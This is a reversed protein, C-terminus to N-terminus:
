NIVLARPSVLLIPEERMQLFAELSGRVQPWNAEGVIERMIEGLQAAPSPSAVSMMSNLFDELSQPAPYTLVDYEGADRGVAAAASAIADELGGIEDAMKLAVAQRGTFLRGEAVRDMDIGERAAVVHDAFVDYTEEMMRQLQQRELDSFKTTSSFLGALPGRSRPYVGLHIKDYLDNMVLKGGVVGISGVISTDNVFIKEGGVACYYGGSAAMSGVSVYVPKKGHLRQLGQWITESAIASGGPSNIRVVVAEILDENEITKLAERITRSGVAEGGFMGGQTSDGDVIPGTIHLVAVTPREPDHAPESMNMLMNFMQFISQSGADGGDLDVMKLDDGHVDELYGRLDRIDVEADIFGAEVADDSDMLFSHQLLDMLKDRGMERDRMITLLWQDYLDDLLGDINESWEESPGSRAMPESAGKYAGVQLYDAQIGLWELTGAYYMEEAYIGVLSVVGGTQLLIDDAAGALAYGAQGYNDAYVYVPRGAARVQEIGQRLEDIQSRTLAPERLRIVLGELNPRRAADDLIELVDTLTKEGDGGMMWALPHPQELLSGSMEFWGIRSAARAPAVAVLLVAAILVAALQKRHTHGTM